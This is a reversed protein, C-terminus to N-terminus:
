RENREERNFSEFNKVELPTSLFDDFRSKGKMENKGSNQYKYLLFHYFAKLERRAEDSLQSINLYTSQEM